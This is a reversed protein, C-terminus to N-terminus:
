WTTPQGAKMAQIDTEWDGDGTLLIIPAKCGRALAQRLLELGDGEGLRYDFLYVDHENREIAQLAERYTAAWDLHVKQSRSLLLDRTLIYDDEDDDAVLVRLPNLGGRSVPSPSPPRM